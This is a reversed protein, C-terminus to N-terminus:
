FFPPVCKSHRAVFGLIHSMDMWTVGGSRVITCLDGIMERIEESQEYADLWRKYKGNATKLVTFEGDFVTVTAAADPFCECPNGPFTVCTKCKSLFKCYDGVDCTLVMDDVCKGKLYEWMEFMTTEWESLECEMSKENSQDDETKTPTEGDSVYDVVQPPAVM